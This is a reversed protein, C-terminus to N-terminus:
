AGNHGDGRTAIYRDVVTALNSVVDTVKNLNETVTALQTDHKQLLDFIVTCSREFRAIREDHEALQEDTKEQRSALRAMIVETQALQEAIYEQKEATREQREIIFNMRRELEANTM